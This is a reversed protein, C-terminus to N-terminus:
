VIKIYANYVYRHYRHHELLTGTAFRLKKPSELSSSRTLSNRPMNKNKLSSRIGLDNPPILQNEQQQKITGQIFKNLARSGRRQSREYTRKAKAEEDEGM